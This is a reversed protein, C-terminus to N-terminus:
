IVKKIMDVNIKNIILVKLEFKESMAAVKDADRVSLMDPTSVIIVKDAANVAMLFGKDIGAPCDIIIYDYRTKLKDTMKKFLPFHKVELSQCQPAALFSLGTYKEDNIIAQKESCAEDMLDLFHYVIRDQMGLAIDLNRLGVDADILLVKYGMAALATGINATVTTKGVGGKGSVIAIVESM